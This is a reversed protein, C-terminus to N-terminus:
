VIIFLYTKEPMTRLKVFFRPMRQVTIVNILMFYKLMIQMGENSAIITGNRADQSPTIRFQDLVNQKLVTKNYASKM